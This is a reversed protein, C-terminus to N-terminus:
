FLLHPTKKPITLTWVHHNQIVHLTVLLYHIFFTSILKPTPEVPCKNGRQRLISDNSVNTSNKVLISHKFLKHGLNTTCVNYFFRTLHVFCLISTEPMSNFIPCM